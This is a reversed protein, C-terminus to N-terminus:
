RAKSPLLDPFAPKFTPLTFGSGRESTDKMLSKLRKLGEEGTLVRAEGAKGGPNEEAFLVFEFAGPNTDLYYNIIDDAALTQVGARPTLNFAIAGRKDFSRYIVETCCQYSADVFDFNFDYQCGLLLFTNILAKVRDEQSVRPRLVLMRNVHNHMIVDTSNFIVGEAVAEIVDADQGSPLREVEMDRGVKARKGDPVDDLRMSDLGAKRRQAPTGVFTIGHKFHGPLFVNSMYGASFAMILDGPQMAGKVAASQEATFALHRTMPRKFDSVTNFLLGQAVYLDAAVKRQVKRAQEMLENQRIRNAVDPLVISRRKLVDKTMEDAQIWLWATQALQASFAPDAAMIRSLASEAVTAEAAFSRKTANLEALTKPSTLSYFLMDFTGAPIDYRYHAENLKRVIVKEDMANLVLWSTHRGLLAAAHFAAALARTQDEESTFRKEHDSFFSLMDWLSERCVLFRFMLSEIRDTEESTVQNYSKSALAGLATQWERELAGLQAAFTRLAAPASALRNTAVTQTAGDRSDEAFCVIASLVCTLVVVWVRALTRM